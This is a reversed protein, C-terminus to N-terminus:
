NRRNNDLMHAISAINEAEKGKKGKKSEKGSKKDDTNLDKEKGLNLDPKKNESKEAENKVSSAKVTQNKSMQSKEAATMTSTSALEKISKKKKVSDEYNKTSM